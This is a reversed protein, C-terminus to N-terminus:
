VFVIGTNQAMVHCHKPTAKTGDSFEYYDPKGHHRGKSATLVKYKGDVLMVAGPFIRNMLKYTAGHPRVELRDTCGGKSVYEELSDVKQEMAKHRNVAVVDRNLIYKRDVMEQMCAQRDHRRFQMLLFRESHDITISPEKLVSCAICYADSNHTKEISNAKRFGSTSYGTTAYTPFTKALEDMLYPIIQNLVSLAGYKKNLGTKAKALKETWAQETHVLRHHKICLGVINPLTDSGNKSKPVVHHFHDIPEECFICHHDQQSSVADHLGNTGYLPGRQYQWKRIRPDDMAMFAFKNLEVVVEM